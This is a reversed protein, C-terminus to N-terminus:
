GYNTQKNTQKNTKKKKKVCMLSKKGVPFNGDPLTAIERNVMTQTEM